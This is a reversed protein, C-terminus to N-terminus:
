PDLHREYHYKKVHPRHPPHGRKLVPLNARHRSRDFELKFTAPLQEDLRRRHVSLHATEPQGRWVHLVANLFALWVSSPAM